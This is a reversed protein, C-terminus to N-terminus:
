KIHNPPAPRQESHGKQAVRTREQAIGRKALLGTGKLPEFGLQCRWVVFRRQHDAEGSHAEVRSLKFHTPGSRSVTPSSRPRLWRASRKHFGNSTKTSSHPQGLLHQSFSFSYLLICVKLNIRVPNITAPNAAPREWCAPPAGSCGASWSSPPRCTVKFGILWLLGPPSPPFSHSRPLANAPIPRRQKPPSIVAFVILYGDTVVSDSAAATDVGNRVSHGQRADLHHFCTVPQVITQVPSHYRLIRPLTATSRHAKILHHKM